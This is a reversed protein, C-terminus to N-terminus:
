TLLSLPSGKYRSFINGRKLEPPPSGWKLKGVNSLEPFTGKSMFVWEKNEKKKELSINKVFQISNNLDKICSNKCEDHPIIGVLPLFTALM